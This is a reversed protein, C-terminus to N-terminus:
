QSSRIRFFANLREASGRVYLGLMGGTFGSAVESSILKSSLHGLPETRGGTHVSFIFRDPHIEVLLDVPGPAVAVLAQVPALECVRARLAVCARGDRVTLFLDLHHQPNAYLTLGVEEGEEPCSEVEVVLSGSHKTLRRFIAAPSAIEDLSISSGRLLLWGPRETLSFRSMDPNRLFVADVGPRFGRLGGPVDEDEWHHAPPLLDSAMELRIEEGGNILPWDDQTWTVSALFTERGLTHYRPFMGATTRIGLFVAWTNGHPDDVFDAHGTCQINTGGRHRHTLIPNYPCPEFPGWPSSARGVTVMHGRGTGGEAVLLYYRGDRKFLHPAEMYGGDTGSWIKQVPTLLQGTAPNVAAQRNESTTLYVKGDDDFLLSPDIGEIDLPVPESWPGAPDTASVLFNGTGGMSTNTCVLYFTGQHWRLTPAWLGKSPAAGALPLQSPRDLAHGLLRWCVLDRSHYIPLGPFWEFTSTTLYYDNGVRCISPDPHFGPLIPNLYNM